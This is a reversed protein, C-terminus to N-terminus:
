SVWAKPRPVPLQTAAAAPGCPLKQVKVKGAAKVRAADNAALAPNWGGMAWQAVPCESSARALM